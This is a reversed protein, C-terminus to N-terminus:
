DAIGFCAQLNDAQQSAVLRPVCVAAVGVSVALYGSGDVVAEALQSLRRALFGRDHRDGVMAVDVSPALSTMAALLGLHDVRREGHRAGSYALRVVQLCVDDIDGRSDANQQAQWNRGVVLSAYHPVRQFNRRLVRGPEAIQFTQLPLGKLGM